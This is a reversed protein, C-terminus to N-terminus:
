RSKKKLKDLLSGIKEKQKKTEEQDLRLDIMLWSGERAGEPLLKKPFDVKIENDGVLLVAFKGEFRDIVARM